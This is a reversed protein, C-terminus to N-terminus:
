RPTWQADLTFRVPRNPDAESIEHRTLVVAQFIEQQKLTEVYTIMDDADKAEATLKLTRRRADPELAVLAITAPTATAVADHLDRWPLNLQLIIANTALAQQESVPPAKAQASAVPRAARALAAALEADYRERQRQQQWAVVGAAVLLGVGLLCLGWAAPRTRHLLAAWGPAAFDIRLARLGPAGRHPGTLALAVARSEEGAPDGLRTVALTDGPKCWSDPVQGTLQLRAPADAQHRMAERQVQTALWDHGAGAPVALSQLGALGKDDTLGLTLLSGHLVGFWAGAQRAHRWRNWAAAFQPAAEVITVGHRAAATELMNWLSRPLASALFSRDARWAAAVKWDAPSAGFLLQFRLAAAAELDGMRSAGQPPIVQWTRVLEDALVVVLRAGAAQALVADLADQVAAAHDIDCAREVLVEAAAGFRGPRVLALATASIGLRLPPTMFEPM